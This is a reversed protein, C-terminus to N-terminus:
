LPDASQVRDTVDVVSVGEADYWKGHSYGTNVSAAMSALSSVIGLLM